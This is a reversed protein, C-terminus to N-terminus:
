RCRSIFSISTIKKAFRPLNQIKGLVAYKNLGAVREDRRDDFFGAVHMGAYPDSDLRRALEIGHENAGVVVARRPPGQFKLIVPISLRLLVHAAFMSILAVCWWAELVDREFHKLFGTVYGFALLLGSGAVWGVVIHRALGPITQTLHETGPFALSFVLVALLVDRSAIHGNIVLVVAFLSAILVVADLSMETLHILRNRQMPMGTAFGVVGPARQLPTRETMSADARVWAQQAGPAFRGEERADTSASKTDVTATELLHVLM